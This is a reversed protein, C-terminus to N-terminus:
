SFTRYITLRLKSHFRLENDITLETPQENTLSQSPDRVEVLVTYSVSTVPM